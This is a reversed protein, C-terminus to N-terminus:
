VFILLQKLLQSKLQIPKQEKCLIWDPQFQKWLAWQCIWNIRFRISFGYLPFFFSQLSKNAHSHIIWLSWYARKWSFNKILLEKFLTPARALIFPKRWSHAKWTEILTKWRRCCNSMCKWSKKMAQEEHFAKFAPRKSTIKHQTVIRQKFQERGFTLSDTLQCWYFSCYISHFVRWFNEVNIEISYFEVFVFMFLSKLENESLIIMRM